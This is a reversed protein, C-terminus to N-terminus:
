KKNFFVYKSSITNLIKNFINHLTASILSNLDISYIVTFLKLFYKDITMFNHVLKSFYKLVLSVYKLYFLKTM